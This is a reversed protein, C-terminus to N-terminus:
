ECVFILKQRNGPAREKLPTLLLLAFHGFSAFIQFRPMNNSVENELKM